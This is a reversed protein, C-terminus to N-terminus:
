PQVYAAKWPKPGLSRLTTAPHFTGAGVEMDYPQLIVCGQRAWFGQLSLILGQLSKTPDLSADAAPPMLGQPNQISNRRRVRSVRAGATLAAANSERGEAALASCQRSLNSRHTRGFAGGIFHALDRELTPDRTVSFPRAKDAEAVRMHKAGSRELVLRRRPQAALPPAPHRGFIRHQRAGGQRPGLALRRRPANGAAGLLDLPQDPPRQAGDDIQRPEAFALYGDIAVHQLRVAASPGGRDGAGPDGQAVAEVPHNLARDELVAREPVVHRGHGAADDAAFRHDIEIVHLIRGRIRVCIEDHGPRATEDFHLARGFARGEALAVEQLHHRQRARADAPEDSQLFRRDGSRPWRGCWVLAESRRCGYCLGSQRRATWCWINPTWPQRPWVMEQRSIFTKFGNRRRKQASRAGAWGNGLVTGGSPQTRVAGRAERSEFRTVRPDRVREPACFPGSFNSGNGEMKRVSDQSVLLN